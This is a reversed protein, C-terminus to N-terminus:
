ELCIKKFLKKFTSVSYYKKHVDHYINNHTMYEVFVGDVYIRNQEDHTELEIIRYIKLYNSKYDNNIFIVIDGVNYNFNEYKM